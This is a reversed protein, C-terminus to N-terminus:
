FEEYAANLKTVVDPNELALDNEMLSDQRVDYLRAGSVLRWDGQKVAAHKWKERERGRPCQMVLIRDDEWQKAGSLLPVLSRGDINDPMKAGCVDLITPCIDRICTLADNQGAATLGPLQMM